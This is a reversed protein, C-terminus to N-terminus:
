MCTYKGPDSSTSYIYIVALTIFNRHAAHLHEVLTYSVLVITPSPTVLSVGHHSNWTHLQVYMSIYKCTIVM